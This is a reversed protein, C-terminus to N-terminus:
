EELELIEKIATVIKPAKNEGRMIKSFYSSDFYLGTRKTVEKLLWDQTKDLDILKKKVTKKFETANTKTLEKVLFTPATSYLNAGAYETRGISM